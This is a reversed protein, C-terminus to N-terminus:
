QCMWYGRVTATCHVLQMHFSASNNCVLWVPTSKEDDGVGQIRSRSRLSRIFVCFYFLDFYIPNDACTLFLCLLHPVLIMILSSSSSSSALSPWIIIVCRTPLYAIPMSGTRLINSNCSHHLPSGYQAYFLALPFTPVLGDIATRVCDFFKERNWM